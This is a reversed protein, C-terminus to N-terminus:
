PCQLDEDRVNGRFVRGRDLRDDRCEFVLFSSPLVEMQAPLDLEGPGANLLM